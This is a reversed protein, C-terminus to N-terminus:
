YKDFYLLIINSILFKFKDFSISLFRYQKLINQFSIKM